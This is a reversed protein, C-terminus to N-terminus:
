QEEFDASRRIRDDAASANSRRGVLRRQKSKEEAAKEEARGERAAVVEKPRRPKGLQRTGSSVTSKCDKDEVKKVTKTKDVEARPVMEQEVANESEMNSRSDDRFRATGTSIARKRKKTKGKEKDKSNAARNTQDTGTEKRKPKGAKTKGTSINRKTIKKSNQQKAETKEAREFKTDVDIENLPSNENEHVSTKEPYYTLAEDGLRELREMRRRVRREFRREAKDEYRAAQVSMCEKASRGGRVIELPADGAM